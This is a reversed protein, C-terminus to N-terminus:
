PEGHLEAAAIDAFAATLYGELPRGRAALLDAILLPAQRATGTPEEDQEIGLAATILVVLVAPDVPPYWEAAARVCRELIARVDDGDLGDPHLEELLRRVVAGLVRGVQHADLAALRTTADEYGDADHALAAAVAETTAGSVARAAPPLKQM